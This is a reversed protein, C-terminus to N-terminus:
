TLGNATIRLYTARHPRTFLEYRLYLDSDDAFYTRVTWGDRHETNTGKDIIGHRSQKAYRARDV